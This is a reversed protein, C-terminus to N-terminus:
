PMKPAAYMSKMLITILGMMSNVTIIRGIKQKRFYPLIANTVNVTGLFKILERKSIKKTKVIDM